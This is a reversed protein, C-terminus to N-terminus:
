CGACPRGQPHLFWCGQDGQHGCLESVLEASHVCWSTAMINWKSLVQSIFDKQLEEEPRESGRAAQECEERVGYNQSLIEALHFQHDASGMSVVTSPVAAPMLAEGSDRGDCRPWPHRTSSGCPEAVVLSSAWATHGCTCAHAPTHVHPGHTDTHGHDACSCM